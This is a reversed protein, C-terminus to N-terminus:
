AICAHLAPRSSCAACSMMMTLSCKGGDGGKEGKVHQARALCKCTCQHSGTAGVFTDNNNTIINLVVVGVRMEQGAADAFVNESVRCCDPGKGWRDHKHLPTPGSRALHHGHSCATNISCRISDPTMPPDHPRFYAAQCSQQASPLQSQEQTSTHSHAHTRARTHTLSFARALKMTEKRDINDSDHQRYSDRPPLRPSSPSFVFGGVVVIEKGGFVHWQARYERLFARLSM